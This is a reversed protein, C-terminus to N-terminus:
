TTPYMDPLCARAHTAKSAKAAAPAAAHELELGTELEVGLGIVLGLGNGVPLGNASVGAGAVTAQGDGGAAPSFSASTVSRPPGPTTIRSRVSWAWGTVRQVNEVPHRNRNM